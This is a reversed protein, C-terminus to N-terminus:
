GLDSMSIDLNSIKTELFIKEMIISKTEKHNIELEDELRRIQKLLERKQTEFEDELSSLESCHKIKEKHFQDMNESLCIKLRKIDQKIEEIEEEKLHLQNECDKKM